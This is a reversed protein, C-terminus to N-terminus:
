SLGVGISAVSTLSLAKASYEHFERRTCLGERITCVALQFRMQGSASQVSGTSAKSLVIDIDVKLIIIFLIVQM